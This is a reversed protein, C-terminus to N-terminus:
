AWKNNSFLGLHSKAKSFHKSLVKMSSTNGPRIRRQLSKVASVIGFFMLPRVRIDYRNQFHDVSLFNLSNDDM